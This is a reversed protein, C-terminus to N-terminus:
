FFRRHEEERQKVRKILQGLDNELGNAGSSVIVKVDM